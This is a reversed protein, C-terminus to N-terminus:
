RDVHIGMGQEPNPVQCTTPKQTKPDLVLVQSYPFNFSPAEDGTLSAYTAQPDNGSIFARVYNGATSSYMPSGTYKPSGTNPFFVVNIRGPAYTSTWTIHDGEHTPVYTPYATLVGGPPTAQQLCQGPNAPDMSLQVVWSYAELKPGGGGAGGGDVRKTECSCCVLILLLSLAVYRM